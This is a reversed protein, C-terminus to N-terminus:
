SRPSWSRFVLEVGGVSIVEGDQLLHSTVPVGDVQTGNTSGLDVLHHRDVSSEIRAHRRSVRSDVLRVRADPSRGVVVASGEVLTVVQGDPLVLSGLVEQSGTRFTEQLDIAASPTDRDLGPDQALISAELRRLAPSPELGLEEALVSRATQYAALAEAQRGARYLALMQQGRLRERFPFDAVLQEAELAVLDHRDSALLLDFRQELAALRGEELRVAVNEFWPTTRLDALARGRWLALARDLLAIADDIRGDAAAEAADAVLREFHIVDLDDTRLLYGPAQTLLVKPPQKPHREPELVRRLASVHQQLTHEAGNPAQDDWVAAILEAVSVVQNAHLGLVALVSRPKSGNVPVPRGGDTVELPGLLGLTILSM